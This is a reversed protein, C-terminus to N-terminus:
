VEIDDCVVLGRIESDHNLSEQTRFKDQLIIVDFTSGDAVATQRCQRRVAIRDGQLRRQNRRLGPLRAKIM